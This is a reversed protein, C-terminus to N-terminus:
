RLIWNSPRLKWRRHDSPQERSKQFNLAVQTTRLKPVKPKAALAKTKPPVTVIADPPAMDALAQEILQRSQQQTYRWVPSNAAIVQPPRPPASAKTVTPTDPQTTAVVVPTDEVPAVPVTDPGVMHVVKYGEDKLTRLLRPLMKATRHQIDHMLIIGKGERRLIRMIRNHVEDPGVRKWDLSDINADFAILGKRAVIRDTAKNRALYPYRFFPVRPAGDYVGYAAKEVDAMGTEIHQRAQSISYKPLREHGQTHHALTHGHAVIRKTLKPNGRAMNGVAFFTAKVCEDQLTDLISQTTGKRPGDDFTLIVEKARLGLRKEHGVFRKHDAPDLTIIRHTGLADPKCAAIAASSFSCLLTTAITAALRASFPKRM